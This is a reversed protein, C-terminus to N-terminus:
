LGRQQSLCVLQLASPCHVQQKKRYGEGQFSAGVYIRPYQKRSQVLQCSRSEVKKCYQSSEGENSEFWSTLYLLGVWLTDVTHSSSHVMRFCGVPKTISYMYFCTTVIIETWQSLSLVYKMQLYSFTFARFWRNIIDFIMTGMFGSAIMVRLASVTLLAAVVAIFTHFDAFQFFSSLFSTYILYVIVCLM